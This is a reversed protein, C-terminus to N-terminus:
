IITVSLDFHVLVLPSIGRKSSEYAFRQSYTRIIVMPAWCVRSWLIVYATRHYRNLEPNRGISGPPGRRLSGGNSCPGTSRPLCLQCFPRRGRGLLCLLCMPHRGLRLENAAVKEQYIQAMRTCCPRPDLESTWYTWWM